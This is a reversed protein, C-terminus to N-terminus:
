SESGGHARARYLLRLGIAVLLLPLLDRLRWEVYGLNMGILIAALSLWALGAAVHREPPPATLKFVAPIALWLPWWAWADRWSYWGRAGAWVALGGLLFLVGTTFTGLRGGGGCHHSSM